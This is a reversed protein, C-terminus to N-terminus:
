TPVWLERGAMRSAMRAVSEYLCDHGAVELEDALLEVEDSLEIPVVRSIAAGDHVETSVEASLLDQSREVRFRAPPEGRPQSVMEILMPRGAAKDGRDRVRIDLEILRDGQTATLSVDQTALADLTTEPEWGLHAGMWGLMLLVSATTRTPQGAGFEMRLSRIARAYPLWPRLRAWHLDNVGQNGASIRAINALGDGPSQFEISDVVLQNAMILLRHFVRHGFPPQGPWWLFTPLEPMLLPVVVSGLHDAARGHATVVIEEYCLARGEEVPRCEVVTSADVGTQPTLRDAILVITRSPRRRGLRELTQHVRDASEQGDTYVV